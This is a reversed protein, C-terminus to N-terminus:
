QSVRVKRKRCETCTILVRKSDSQLPAEYIRTKVPTNRNGNDSIADESDLRIDMMTATSTIQLEPEPSADPERLHFLVPILNAQNSALGHNQRIFEYETTSMRKTYIVHGEVVFKFKECVRKLLENGESIQTENLEQLINMWDEDHSLAVCGVNLLSPQARLAIEFALM